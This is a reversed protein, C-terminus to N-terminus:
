IIRYDKLEKFFTEVATKVVVVTPIAFLMGWLGMILSGGIIAIIVVLPHVNAASGLVFPQFVVDDLIHVLVVLILVYLALDNPNLGPILPRIDEAILAYGVGIVLAIATGLFPIANLLGSVTGIAVAIGWPIGLLILGLTLCLGVLFCEMLTGRLYRGIADDLRDIVTLSLEFYRNPVLSIFFRRIQGNDFGLFIFILPALMWASLKSELSTTEEAAPPQTAPPAIPATPAVGGPAKEPVVYERTRQNARFYDVFKSQIPPKGNYGAAYKLFLTREEPSLELTQNVKDMLPGVEKEILRTVANSKGEPSKAVLQRYRENLKYKLRVKFEVKQEEDPIHKRLTNFAFFLVVGIAAFSCLVQLERPLWRVRFRDKVPRFLFALLAGVIIPLILIRLKWILFAGCILTLAAFTLYFVKRRVKREREQEEFNQGNSM